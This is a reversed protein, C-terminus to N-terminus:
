GAASRPVVPANDTPIRQLTQLSIGLHDTVLEPPINRLWQSANLSEFLNSKFMELFVLDTDGTNEIYHPLTKPVYGVDGANFDMTNALSANFFATMRGKGKIYYQWEDANQHWHLVRLGGPRVTVHAMAVSTAVPFNRSDVVRVEGGPGQFLPKMGGMNFSFNVPSKGNVASAKRIDEALPGPVARQFIYYGSSPVQYLPALPGGGMQFNKAVVEPPTHRLWDTLLTTDDESFDGQDFVLLFETGNPELGQISHPNGTPFYWLDNVGVDNVFAKGNNDLCTIRANGDLVIAWEAAAHWHLERIGGPTLRMNVGAITTSIAFDKTNVQRSWGGEEVRRHAASFSNWFQPTLGHDTPPPLFPDPQLGRLAANEPGPNSASADHEGKTTDQISQGRAGRAGLMATLLAASGAGLLGRRDLGQRGPERKEIDRRDPAQLTVNSTENQDM